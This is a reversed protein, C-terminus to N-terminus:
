LRFMYKALSGAAAVLTEIVTVTARVAESPVGTAVITEVEVVISGLVALGRASVTPVPDSCVKAGPASSRSCTRM